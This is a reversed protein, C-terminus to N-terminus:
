PWRGRFSRGPLHVCWGGGSSLEGSTCVMLLPESGFRQSRVSSAIPEAPWGPISEIPTSRDRAAPTPEQRCPWHDHGVTAPKAIPQHPAAPSSPKRARAGSGALIQEVGTDLRSRVPTNNKHAKWARRYRMLAASRAPGENRATAPHLGETTGNSNSFRRSGRHTAAQRTWRGVAPRGPPRSAHSRGDAGTTASDRQPWPRRRWRGVRGTAPRIRGCRAHDIPGAM